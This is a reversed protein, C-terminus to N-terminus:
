YQIAAYQRRMSSIQPPGGLVKNVLMGAAHKGANLAFTSWGPMNSDLFSLVKNTYPEVSTQQVRPEVYGKGVQPRWEINQIIEFALQNSPVGIWAFGIYTPAEHKLFEPVETPRSGNHSLSGISSDRFNASASDPRYTVEMADMSIREARTALSMLQNVSPKDNTLIAAPINDLVVFRGRCESTNGTYTMRVCSSVTRFDQVTGSRIFESAGVVFSHGGYVPPWSLDGGLPHEATNTIQTSPNAAMYFVNNTATTGSVSPNGGAYTPCWLFYGYELTEGVTITTKYRSLIGETTGYFGPVLTSECPDAVM